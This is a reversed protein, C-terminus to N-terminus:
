FDNVSLFKIDGNEKSTFTAGQFYGYFALNNEWLFRRIDTWVSNNEKQLDVLDSGAFLIEKVTRLGRSNLFIKTEQTIDLEYSFKTLLANVENNSYDQYELPKVETVIIEIEFVKKIWESYSNFLDIDDSNNTNLLFRGFSELYNPDLGTKIQFYTALFWKKIIDEAMEWNSIRPPYCLYWNGDVDSKHLHLTSRQNTKGNAPFYNTKDGNKIIFKTIERQMFKTQMIEITEEYPSKKYELSWNEYLDILSFDGKKRIYAKVCVDLIPISNKDKIIIAYAKFKEKLLVGPAKFKTNTKM